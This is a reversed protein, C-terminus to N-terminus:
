KNEDSSFNDDQTFNEDNSFNEDFVINQDNFINVDQNFNSDISVDQNLNNDVLSDNLNNEDISVNKDKNNLKDQIDKLANEIESADNFMQSLSIYLSHYVVKSSKPNVVLLKEDLNLIVDSRKVTSFPYNVMIISRDTDLLSSCEEKTLELNEQVNGNNSQCYLLNNEEDVVSILLITNKNKASLISQSFVLGEIVSSLYNGDNYYNNFVLLFNDDQGFQEFGKKIDIGQSTFNINNESDVFSYKNDMLIQNLILAILVIVVSILIIKIILKNRKKISSKKKIDKVSETKASVLAQVM